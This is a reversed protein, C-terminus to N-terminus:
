HYAVNEIGSQTLTDNAINHLINNQFQNHDLEEMFFNTYQGTQRLGYLSTLSELYLKWKSRTTVEVLNRLQHGWLAAAMWGNQCLVKPNQIYSITYGRATGNNM